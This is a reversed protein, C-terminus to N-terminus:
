SLFTLPKEDPLIVCQHFLPTQLSDQRPDYHGETSVYLIVPVAKLGERLAQFLGKHDSQPAVVAYIAGPGLYLASIRGQPLCVDELYYSEDELQCCCCNEYRDM